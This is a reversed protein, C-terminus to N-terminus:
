RSALSAALYRFTLLIAGWLLSHDLGATALTLFIPGYIPFLSLITLCDHLSPFSVGEGVTHACVKLLTAPGAM